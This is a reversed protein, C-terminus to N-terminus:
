GQIPPLTVIRGPLEMATPLGALTILFILHFEVFGYKEIPVIRNAIPRRCFMFRQLIDIGM